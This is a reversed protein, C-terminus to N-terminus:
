ELFDPDTHRSDPIRGLRSGFVLCRFSDKLPPEESRMIKPFRQELVPTVSAAPPFQPAAAEQEARHGPLRVTVTTKPCDKIHCTSAAIAPQNSHMIRNQQHLGEPVGTRADSEPSSCLAINSHVIFIAADGNRGLWRAQAGVEAM